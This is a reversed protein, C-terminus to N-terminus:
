AEKGTLLVCLAKLAAMAETQKGRDAVGRVRIKLAELIVQLDLDEVFRIRREHDDLVGSIKVLVSGIDQVIEKIDSGCSNM